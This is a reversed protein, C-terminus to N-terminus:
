DSEHKKRWPIFVSTTRQYRRYNEGRSRLAQQETYPIGTIFYLFALMILPFLWMWGGSPMALALLPYSFWHLWEFFYNPHRSYNWWGQECVQGQNSVQNVFDRLQRDATSVGWLSLVFIVVAAWYALGPATIEGQSIFWAPLAFGWALFAQFQFFFLHNFDAKDGWYQRLYRYRGDEQEAFVRKALHRALRFYWGGMMVAVTARALLDGDYVLAYFLAQVVILSAWLVDVVGANQTRQQYFWGAQMVLMCLILSLWLM